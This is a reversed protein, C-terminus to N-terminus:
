KMIIGHGYRTQIYIQQRNKILCFEDFAKKCLDSSMYNVVIFCDNKINEWSFDLYTRLKDYTVNENIFILDFKEKFDFCEDSLNGHHIFIYKKYIDKINKYCLNSSYYTSDNEQFGIFKEVTKCSQLFSVGSLGLGVGIELVNVPNVFKGFHYYFPFNNNDLYAGTKKSNEDILRSKALLTKSNILSKNLLNEISTKIENLNVINMFYYLLFIYREGRDGYFSSRVQPLVSYKM